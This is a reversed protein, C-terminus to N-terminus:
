FLGPYQGSDVTLTAGTIFSAQRSGQPFRLRRHAGSAGEFLASASPSPNSGGFAQVKTTKLVTAADDAVTRPREGDDAAYKVSASKTRRREGVNAM